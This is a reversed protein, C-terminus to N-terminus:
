IKWFRIILQEIALAILAFILAWKWLPKGKEKEEVYQKIDAPTYKQLVKYKRALAAPPIIRIDSERRDYNLAIKRIPKKHLELTYIGAKKIYDAFNLQIKNNRNLQEPILDTNEGTLHFVEDANRAPSHIEMWQGSGITYSLPVSAGGSIATKYMIPLFLEAHNSLTSYPETLPASLIYVHGPLYSSKVMFASGDRYTLIEEILAANVPHYVISTQTQFLSLSPKIKTFVDSFIQEKANIKSVDKKLTSEKSFVGAGLAKLLINYSELESDEGPIILINKGTRVYNLLSTKMGSSVRHLEQLVILNYDSLRNYDIASSPTFDASFGNLSGYLTRLRENPSHDYIVLVRLQEPVEFAIYYHDDFRIPYDNIDISASQWGTHNLKMEFTDLVSGDAPVDMIGVPLEQGKYHIALHVNEVVDAGANKIRIILKNSQDKLPVPVEFWASDIYVNQQQPSQVPILNLNLSTDKMTLGEAISKQFDSILYSVRAASAESKTIRSQQRIISNLSQVIPTYRINHILDLADSKEVLFPSQGELEHTIIHFRDGQNYASVLEIAAQKAKELLPVDDPKAEMSFSNDVFISVAQIGQKIKKEPTIVPYAFALILGTFALLRMLLTMLNKLRSRASTEEKIAKLYKVNTFHVTKFRRFYFLHIIVPIVLLSLAWLVSPYLFHM